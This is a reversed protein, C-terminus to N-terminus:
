LESGNWGWHATSEYEIYVKDASVGLTDGLAQTLAGTLKEYADDQAKGFLMVKIFALKQSCDGKFYMRCNDEFQLMLWDESKGPILSIARGFRKSLEKETEKDIPCNVRTNIFPM